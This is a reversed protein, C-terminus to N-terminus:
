RYYNPAMNDFRSYRGEFRLNLKGTDGNGQKAIIIEALGKAESDENYVVDRYIFLILDATDEISGSERIDSILPRKNPRKELDRNLQSVIIIPVGLRRALQKLKRTITGLQDSRNNPFDEPEILQLYDIVVLNLQGCKIICRETKDIIESITLAPTDDILLKTESLLAVGSCFRGWDDDDLKGNRIKTQEIKGLSALMRMQLSESPMELSFVLVTKNKHSLAVHEVINMALMTKGMSPRGGIVILEGAHLGGTLDDLDYYGTSLGSINHNSNCLDEVRNYTKRLMEKTNM